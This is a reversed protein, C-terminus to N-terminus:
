LVGIRELEHLNQAVTKCQANRAEELFRIKCYPRHFLLEFLDDALKVEEISRWRTWGSCRM